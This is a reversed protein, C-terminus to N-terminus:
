LPVLKDVCSHTACVRLSGFLPLNYPLSGSVKPVLEALADVSQQTQQELMLIQEAEEPSGAYLGVISV